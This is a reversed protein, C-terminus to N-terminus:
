FMSFEAFTKPDAYDTGGWALGIFPFILPVGWGFVSYKLLARKIYTGFVRVLARYMTVAEIIM